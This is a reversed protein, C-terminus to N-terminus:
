DTGPSRVIMLNEVMIGNKENFKAGFEMDLLNSGKKVLNKPTLIEFSDNGSKSNKALIFVSSIPSKNLFLRFSIDDGKQKEPNLFSIKFLLREPASSPFIIRSKKSIIRRGGIGDREIYDSWGKIFMMDNRSDLLDRDYFVNIKTPKLGYVTLEEDDVVKGMEPLCKILYARLFEYSGGKLDEKHLIIYRIDFLDMFKKTQFKKNRKIIGHKLDPPNKIDQLFVLDKIFENKSYYTIVDRPIYSLYGSLLRKGHVAQYYQFLGWRDVWGGIWRAKGVILFPL